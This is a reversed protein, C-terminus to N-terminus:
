EKPCCFDYLIMEKLFHDIKDIEMQFIDPLFFIFPKKNSLKYDVVFQLIDKSFQVGIIIMGITVDNTLTNFEQIFKDYKSDEFIIGEIGLLGFLLVLEEEGFIIIRNESM